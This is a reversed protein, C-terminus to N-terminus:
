AVASPAMFVALEDLRPLAPGRRSCTLAAAHVAEAGIAQLAAADLRAISGPTRWGQRLLSALLAAMFSDGAGVTDAVAVPVAALDIRGAFRTFLSAGAAGQTLVVLATRDNLWHRCIEAPDAAAGYLHRIDEDSVKIVHAFIRLRDIAARWLAADPVISLRVNPDLSILVDDAFRRALDLLRDASAPLVIAISGLHIGGISGAAAAVAAKTPAYIADDLGVFTYAPVGDRDTAVLALATRRASRRLLLDSVGDAQMTAALHDGLPDRAIDSALAAPVGLRCLGIAVNFPSGGAVARLTAQGMTDPLDTGPFVDYLAEGCVLHM